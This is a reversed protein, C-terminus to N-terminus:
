PIVRLVEQLNTTDSCAGFACRVQMNKSNSQIGVFVLLYALYLIVMNETQCRMRGEVWARNFKTTFWFPLM